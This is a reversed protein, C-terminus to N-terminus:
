GTRDLPEYVVLGVPFALEGSDPRGRYRPSACGKLRSLGEVKPVRGSNESCEPFAGCRRPLSAGARARGRGKNGRSGFHRTRM